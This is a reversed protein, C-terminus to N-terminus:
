VVADCNAEIQKADRPTTPLDLIQVGLNLGKKSAAGRFSLRAATFALISRTRREM